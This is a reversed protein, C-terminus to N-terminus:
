QTIGYLTFKGTAINGSNCKFRICDAAAQIVGSVRIGNVYNTPAWYNCFVEYSAYNSGQGLGSIYVRLQGAKGYTGNNSVNRMIQQESTSNGISGSAQIGDGSDNDGENNQMYYYVSTKNAAYTSGDTGFNMEFDIDNTAPRIQSGIICYMQYTSALNEFEVTASDSATVTSGIQVWSGANDAASALTTTGTFKLFQDTTGSAIGIGGNGVPLTGTVNSALNVSQNSGIRTIAM